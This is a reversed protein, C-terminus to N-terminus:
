CCPRPAASRDPRPGAPAGRGQAADVARGVGAVRCVRRHARRLGRPCRRGLVRATEGGRRRGVPLAESALSYRAAHRDDGSQDRGVARCRRSSGCAPFVPAAAERARLVVRGRLRRATGAPVDRRRRAVPGRRRRDLIQRERADAAGGGCFPLVPRAHAGLVDHRLVDAALSCARHACARREVWSSGRQPPDGADRALPGRAVARPSCLTRSLRIASFLPLSLLLFFPPFVSKGDHVFPAEFPLHFEGWVERAWPEPTMWEIESTISGTGIWTSILYQKLAGDGAIHV